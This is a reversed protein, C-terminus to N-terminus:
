SISSSRLFPRASFSFFDVLGLGFDLGVLSLEVVHAVVAFKVEECLFDFELGKFDFKAFLMDVFIGAYGVGFVGVDGSGFFFEGVLLVDEGFLAGFEFFDHRFGLLVFLTEALLSFGEFGFDVGAGEGGELADAFVGAVTEADDVDLAVGTTTAEVADRRLFLHFDLHAFFDDNAFVAASDHDVGFEGANFSGFGFGGSLLLDAGRREADSM